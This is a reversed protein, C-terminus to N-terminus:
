RLKLSHWRSAAPASSTSCRVIALDTWNARAGDLLIGLEGTASTESGSVQRSSVAPHITPLLGAAPAITDGWALLTIFSTQASWFADLPSRLDSIETLAM